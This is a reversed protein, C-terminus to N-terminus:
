RSRAAACGSRVVSCRCSSASWSAAAARSRSPAFTSSGRRSPRSAQFQGFSEGFREAFPYDIRDVLEVAVPDALVGHWLAWLLTEPVGTLGPDIREGASM